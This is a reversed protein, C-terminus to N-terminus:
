QILLTQTAICKNEKWLGVTYMGKSFLQYQLSFTAEQQHVTMSTQQILQGLMDTIKIQYAGKEPVSIHLTTPSSIQVPNPYIEFSTTAQKKTAIREFMIKDNSAITSNARTPVSEFCIYFRKADYSLPDTSVDFTITTAVQKNILQMTNMFRDVLYMNVNMSSLRSPAFQFQHAQRRINSLYLQITDTIVPMKRAVISLIKEQVAIGLNEGSNMIKNADLADISNNHAASLAISIGDTLVAASDAGAYLYVRLFSKPRARDVGM